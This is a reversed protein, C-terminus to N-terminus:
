AGRRLQWAVRSPSCVGCDCGPQKHWVIEGVVHEEAVARLALRDHAGDRLPQPRVSQAHPEIVPFDAGAVVDRRFDLFLQLVGAHEHEAHRCIRESRVPRSHLIVADSSGSAKRPEM